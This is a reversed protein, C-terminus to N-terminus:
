IIKGHRFLLFSIWLHSVKVELVLSWVALSSSHKLLIISIRRQGLFWVFLLWSLVCFCFSYILESIKLSCFSYLLEKFGFTWVKNERIFVVYLCSDIAFIYSRYVAEPIELNSLYHYLSVWPLLVISAPNGILSIHEGDM